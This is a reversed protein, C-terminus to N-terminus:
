GIAAAAELQKHATCRQNLAYNLCDLIEVCAILADDKVTGVYGNLGMTLDRKYGHSIMDLSLRM